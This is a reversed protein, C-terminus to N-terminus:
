MNKSAQQQDATHQKTLRENALEREIELKKLQLEGVRKELAQINAKFHEHQKGMQRCKAELQEIKAKQDREQQKWENRCNQEQQQAFQLQQRLETESQRSLKLEGKLKEM